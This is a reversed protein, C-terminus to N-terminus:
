QSEGNTNGLGDQGRRTDDTGFPVKNMYEKSVDDTLHYYGASVSGDAHGQWRDVIERPIAHNICFTKFFHRLSHVTFGKIGARAAAAKFYDNLRKTNIPQGGQPYKPSPEATFLLDHGNGPLSRLLTALRPHIPIKRVSGETKTPGGVQEAIDIFGTGLSCRSKRIGQLEGSRMGAFALCSIQARRTLTCRGLILNVQELSPVSKEKRRPKHLEYEDIPNVLVMSRRKAWRFLQKIVVTEHYVTAPDHDQGRWARYKDLLSVTVQSLKRVGLDAGFATFTALEGRYRTVTRKARGNSVLFDIYAQAADQLTTASPTLRFEGVELKGALDIAKQMAVKKNSTRMSKRRHAGADSFEATWIGKQGRPSIVIRDGVPIRQESRRETKDM